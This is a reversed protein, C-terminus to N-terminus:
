EAQAHSVTLVARTARTPLDFRVFENRSGGPPMPGFNGTTTQLPINQANFFTVSYHGGNVAALTANNILVYVFGDYRLIVESSLFQRINRTEYTLLERVLRAHEPGRLSLKREEAPSDAVPGASQAAATFSLAFLLGTLAPLLRTM